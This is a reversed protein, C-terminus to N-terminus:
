LLHTVLTSLTSLLRQHRPDPSHAASAAFTEVLEMFDVVVEVEREDDGPNAPDLVIREVDYQNCLNAILEGAFRGLRDPHVVVLRDVGGACIRQVLTVVGARNPNLAAGVDSVVEAQWCHETAYARLRAVQQELQPLLDPRAVRAYLLALGTPAYKLGISRRLLSIDYRRHGTPTRDPVLKGKAEWRMLTTKSVGLFRAAGQMTLRKSTAPIPGLDTERAPPAPLTSPTTAPCTAGASGLGNM